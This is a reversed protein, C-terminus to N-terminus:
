DAKLKKAFADVFEEDTLTEVRAAPLTETKPPAYYDSEVTFMGFTVGTGELGTKIQQDSWGYWEHNPSSTLPKKALRVELRNLRAQLVRREAALGTLKKRLENAALNLKVLANHLEDRAQTTTPVRFMDM